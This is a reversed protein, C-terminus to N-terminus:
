DYEQFNRKTVFRMWKTLNQSEWGISDIHIDSNKINRIKIGQSWLSEM